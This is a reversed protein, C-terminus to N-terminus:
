THRASIIHCGLGFIVRECIGRLALSSIFDSVKIASPALWAFLGVGDRASDIDRRNPDVV